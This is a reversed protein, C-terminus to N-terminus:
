VDDRRDRVHSTRWEVSVRDEPRDAGRVFLWAVAGVLAVAFLMAAAMLLAGSV